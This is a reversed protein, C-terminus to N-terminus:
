LMRNHSFVRGSDAQLSVSGSVRRGVGIAQLAADSYSTMGDTFTVRRGKGVDFLSQVRIRFVLPLGEDGRAGFGVPVSSVQANESEVPLAEPTEVNPMFAASVIAGFFVGSALLLTRSYQRLYIKTLKLRKRWTWKVFSGQFRYWPALLSYMGTHRDETFVQTTDYAEYLDKGRYLWRDVSLSQPQDGYKVIGVHLKPFTWPKDGVVSGIWGIVPLKIRDMRRCYVCHEALSKRVQKDLMSIDQIILYVDWLHKRIHLLLNILERRGEEQWDRSNLWTGCEDFVLLGFKDEDYAKRAEALSNVGEIGFGLAKIDEATPRDPVRVVRTMKTRKSVGPFRHLNLDLNTAIRRGQVIADDIRSVAALTKGAGLKGTVIYIAM